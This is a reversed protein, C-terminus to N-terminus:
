KNQCFQFRRLLKSLISGKYFHKETKSYKKWFYFLMKDYFRKQVNKKKNHLILLVTQM